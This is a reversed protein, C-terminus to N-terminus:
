TFVLVLLTWNRIVKLGNQAAEFRKLVDVMDLALRSNRGYFMEFM